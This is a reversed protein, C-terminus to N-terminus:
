GSSDFSVSPESSGGRSPTSSGGSGKGGSAPAGSAGTGGSGGGSAAPATPAPATTAPPSVVQSATTAASGGGTSAVRTPRSGHSPAPPPAVSVGVEIPPASTLGAPVRASPLPLSSPGTRGEAGAQKSREVAYGAVYAAAFAVVALVLVSALRRSM